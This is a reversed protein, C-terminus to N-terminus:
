VGSFAVATGPVIGHEAAFGANVELVYSAPVFPSYIPRNADTEQPGSPPLDHELHVVVGEEIWLIDLPFTMGKMWFAHRAPLDFVFLM